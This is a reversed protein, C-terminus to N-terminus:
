VGAARRAIAKSGSSIAMSGAISVIALAAVKGGSMKKVKNKKDASLAKKSVSPLLDGYRSSGISPIIDKFLKAKGSQINANRRQMRAGKQAAAKKFSMTKILSGPNAMLHVRSKDIINGKGKGVKVHRETRRAQRVGWKMGKKGFHELYTEEDVIM